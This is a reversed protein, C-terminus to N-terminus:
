RLPPIKIQAIQGPSILTNMYQKNEIQVLYRQRGTLKIADDFFAEARKDIRSHNVLYVICPSTESVLGCRKLNEKIDPNRVVGQLGGSSAAQRPASGGGFMVAGLVLGIGLMGVFLLSMTKTKYINLSLNFRSAFNDAPLVTNDSTSQAPESGGRVVAPTVSAPPPTFSPAQPPLPPTQFHQDTM